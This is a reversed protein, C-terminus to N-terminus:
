PVTAPQQQSQQQRQKQWQEKLFGFLTQTPAGFRVQITKDTRLISVKKALEGLKPQEQAALQAM